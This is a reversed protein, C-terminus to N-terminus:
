PSAPVEDPSRWGVAASLAAAVLQNLSVGEQEATRALDAHLSRPIRVLFRGSYSDIDRPEPIERGDELAVSIWSAM